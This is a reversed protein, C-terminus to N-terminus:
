PKSAASISREAAGARSTLEALRDALDIQRFPKNLRAFETGIEETRSYGSVILVPLEPHLARTRRALEAGTLGPMLYDTVLVDVPDGGRLVDLAEEGSGAEVLRYGFEAIMAATTERVLEDDDVLLVTGRRDTPTPEREIQPPSAPLSSSLPLWMEATTGEGPASRMVLRGGSQACLGHVMSLGLGTGKGVGKSTYFPEICRKLTAADMGMGTDAVAICVYDGPTLQSDPAARRRDASITLCGGGPMADHANIALNLLALELQNRDVRAFPLDAAVAIELQVTPGVTREILDRMGEILAGPDVPESQLPARRAFALLRQVLARAREASEVAGRILRQDRDSGLQKRLLMDLSGLIPTLLNNFDHAVGGTMQGITDLKQAEFLQEQATALAAAQEREVPVDRGVAYLRGAEAEPTLAWAITRWGGAKVKVRNEYRVPQGTSRLLELQEGVHALDDPHIIDAFPRTLLEERSWGFIRTWSDSVEVMYGDFGATAFLDESVAWLRNRESVAAAVREELEDNLHRLEAERARLAQEVEVREAIDQVTGRLSTVKGSADRVTESRTTVWIPKGARLARVDLVYGLGSRTSAEVAANIREWEEVPYLTGRQAAFDPFPDAPDLGYIRYLGDTGTTSDTAADWVWSGFRGLRQAEILQQASERLQREAVKRRGIDEAVAIFFAPAGAEDRVLAVTLNVWIDTGDKGLYRKEMTFSDAEGRLLREVNGVDEALDDPHTIEKWGGGILDDRSRGLIECYRDNIELFPGDPSVRAVGVGAQEFVARYRAESDQVRQQVLKRDHTDVSVGFWRVIEGSTPDRFPEARVLFWRYAGDKRRIRHENEFVGGSQMAAGFRDMVAAADDPHIYRHAVDAADSPLDHAGVYDTWQKNFFELRGETDTIWIIQPILEAMSRFRAESEQLAAAAEVEEHVDLCIGMWETTGDAGAIPVGRVHQWRWQGDRRRLRYRTRYTVGAAVAANWAALAGARDDPHIADAWGQGRVEDPAQGTYRAWDDVFMSSGEADTRWALGVAAILASLDADTAAPM